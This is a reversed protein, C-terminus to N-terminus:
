HHIITKLTIKFPKNSMTVTKKPCKQTTHVPRVLNRQTLELEYYTKNIQHTADKDTGSHAVHWRQGAVIM